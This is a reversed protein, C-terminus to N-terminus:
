SQRRGRQQYSVEISHLTWENNVWTISLRFYEGSIGGTGTPIFLRRFNGSAASVISTSYNFNEGRDTSVSLGVGGGSLTVGSMTLWVGRLTSEQGPSPSFDKTDFRANISSGGSYSDSVGSSLKNITYTSADYSSSLYLIQKAPEAGFSDISSTVTDIQSSIDDILISQTLAASTTAYIGGPYTRTSWKGRQWDYVFASTIKTSDNTPICLVYRTRDPEIWSVIEDLRAYDITDLIESFVPTGIPTTTTGELLYVNDTGLFILQTANLTQASDGSLCGVNIWNPFVIPSNVDGTERGFYISDNKFVLLSSQHVKIGTVLGPTDAFDVAGSGIDASTDWLWWSSDACWRIRRGKVGSEDTVALILRGAFGALYKAILATPGSYSGHSTIKACNASSGDWYAVENVGNCFFYHDLVTTNRTLDGNAGGTLIGAGSRNTLSTSTTTKFTTKTHVALATTGDEFSPFGLGNIPDSSTAIGSDSLVQRFVLGRDTIDVNDLYTAKNDDIFLPDTSLDLGGVPSVAPSVKSGLVIDM